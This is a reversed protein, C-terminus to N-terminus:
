KLLRKGNVDVLVCAHQHTKDLFADAEAARDCDFLAMEEADLKSEATSYWGLAGKGNAAIAKPNAAKRYQAIVEPSVKPYPVGDAKMRAVIIPEIGLFKSLSDRVDPWWIAAYHGMGPVSATTLKGAGRVTKCYSSLLKPSLANLQGFAGIATVECGM